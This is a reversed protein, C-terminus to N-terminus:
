AGLLRSLIRRQDRRVATRILHAARLVILVPAVIERLATVDDERDVIAEDLVALLHKRLRHV